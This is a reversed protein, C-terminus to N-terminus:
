DDASPVHGEAIIMPVCNVDVRSMTDYNSSRSGQIATIAYYGYEPGMEFTKDWWRRLKRIEGGAASDDAFWVQEVETSVKLQKILPMTAIAYMAKM